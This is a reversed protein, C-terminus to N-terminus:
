LGSFGQYSDDTGGGHVGGPFAGDPYQCLHAAARGGCYPLYGSDAPGGAKESGGCLPKSDQRHHHNKGRRGFKLIMRQYISALLYDFPMNPKQIKDIEEMVKELYKEDVENEVMTDYILQRFKKLEDNQEGNEETESSPERESQEGDGPRPEGAAGDQGETKAHQTETQLSQRAQLQSELLTQLNELKEEISRTASSVPAVPAEVSTRSAASATLPVQERRVNVSRQPEEELAATVETLKSRFASFAGKPKIQRVSMIVVGSGLEKRAAETAEAETKGTFKKIIM